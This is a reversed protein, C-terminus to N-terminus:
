LISAASLSVGQLRQRTFSGLQVCPIIIIASPAIQFGLSCFCPPSSLGELPWWVWQSVNPEWRCAPSSPKLERSSHLLVRICPLPYLATVVPVNEGDLLKHSIKSRTDVSPYCRHFLSCEGLVPSKPLCTSAAKVWFRTSFKVTAGKTSDFYRCKM